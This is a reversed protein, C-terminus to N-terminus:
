NLYAKGTFASSFTLTILNESTYTAHGYIVNDSSDVITISPRRQLNHTITWTSAAINQNHTYTSAAFRGTGFLYDAVSVATYTKTSLGDNADSGIFIDNDTVNNDQPYSNIRPM